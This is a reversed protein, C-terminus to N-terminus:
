RFGVKSHAYPSSYQMGYAGNQMNMQHPPTSVHHSAMAHGQQTGREWTGLLRSSYYGVRGTAYGTSAQYQLPHSKKISVDQRHGFLPEKSAGPVPKMKPFQISHISKQAAPSSAANVGTSAGNAMRPSMGNYAANAGPHSFGNYAGNAMHPPVGNYAANAMHPSVGNYPGNAAPAYIPHYKPKWNPPEPVPATWVPTKRPLGPSHMQHEYHEVEKDHSKRERRILEQRRAGKEWEQVQEPKPVGKWKESDETNEPQIRIFVEEPRGNMWKREMHGLPWLKNERLSRAYVEMKANGAHGISGPVNWSWHGHEPDIAKHIPEFEYKDGAHDWKWEGFSKDISDDRSDSEPNAPTEEQDAVWELKAGTPNSLHLDDAFM